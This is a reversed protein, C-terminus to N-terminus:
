AGAAGPAHLVVLEATLSEQVSRLARLGADDVTSVGALDLTIRPHGRAQLALAVGRLLDVGQETLQGGAGVTGAGRDVVELRAVTGPAATV